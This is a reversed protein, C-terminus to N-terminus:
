CLHVPLFFSFCTVRFNGNRSDCPFQNKPVALRMCAAGRRDFNIIIRPSSGEPQRFASGRFRANRCGSPQPGNNPFGDIRGLPPVRRGTM